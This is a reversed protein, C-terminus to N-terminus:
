GGVSVGFRRDRRQFEGIASELHDRNFDPWLTEVFVLEAYAAQWLLFNSIRKEGSTRIVLDPDPLGHTFLREALAGEDLDNLALDGSQIDEALRRAAATIEQRSGYSLAVTLHLTTNDGTVREANEILEVIDAKLRSREGIVRIRVGNRHLEAVESRLYKRLLGMLDSVEDEPRGWNETSFGFLTLHGIGLDVSAEVVRRVAEAGRHHGM